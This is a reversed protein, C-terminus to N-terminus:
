RTNQFQLVAQVEVDYVLQNAGTAQAPIIGKLGYYQVAPSAVDVWTQPPMQSFSTFLGAFAANAAKPRLVREFSRTVPNVQHSDYEMSTGTTITNSDDYDIVTHIVPVTSLSPTTLAAISTFIVRVEAIRYQDFLSTFETSDPFSSLTFNITFPGDVTSSASLSTSSFQRVFTYTKNRKISPFPIDPAAPPQVGNWEYNTLLSEKAISVLQKVATSDGRTTRKKRTNKNNRRNM